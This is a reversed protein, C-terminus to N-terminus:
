KDKIQANWGGVGGGKKYFTVDGGRRPARPLQGRNSTVETEKHRRRIRRWWLGVGASGHAPAVIMSSCRPSCRACTPARSADSTAGSERSRGGCDNKQREGEPQTESPIKLSVGWGPNSDYGPKSFRSGSVEWRSGEHQFVRREGLTHPLPQRFTGVEIAWIVRAWATCRRQHACLLPATTADSNCSPQKM